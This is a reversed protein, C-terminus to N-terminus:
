EKWHEGGKDDHKVHPLEYHHSQLQHPHHETYVLVTSKSKLIYTINYIYYFLLNRREFVDAFSFSWHTALAWIQYGEM